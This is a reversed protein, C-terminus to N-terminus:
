SKGGFFFFLLFLNSLSFFGVDIEILSTIVHNLAKLKITSKESIIRLKFNKRKRTSSAQASIVLVIPKLIQKSNLNGCRGFHVVQVRFATYM